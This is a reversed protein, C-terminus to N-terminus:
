NWVALRQREMAEVADALECLHKALERAHQPSLVVCRSDEDEVAELLLHGDANIDAAFRDTCIVEDPHREIDTGEAYNADVETEVDPWERRTKPESRSTDVVVGIWFAPSKVTSYTQKTFTIMSATQTGVSSMLVIHM